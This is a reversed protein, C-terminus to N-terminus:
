FAATFVISPWGPAVRVRASGSRGRRARVRDMVLLAVGTVALVGGTVMVGVGPPRFNRGTPDPGPDSPNDLQRGQAFVIGGAVVGAVGGALVGIGAKGLAGLPASGRDQRDQPTAVTPEPADPEPEGPEDGPAPEELQELAAGLKGIVAKALATDNVCNAEFAEVLRPSAGARGSWIEIRYVSNEYDKWALKVVVAPAGRDNVAAVGHREDLAKIADERVFRASAEAAEAMQQELLASHDVELRVADIATSSRAHESPSPGAGAAPGVLLLAVIPISLTM